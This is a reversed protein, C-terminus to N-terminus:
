VLGFHIVKVTSATADGDVNEEEESIHDQPDMFASAYERYMESNLVPDNEYSYAPISNATESYYARHDQVTHHGQQVSRQQRQEREMLSTIYGAREQHQFDNEPGSLDEEEVSEATDTGTGTGISEVEIQDAKKKAVEALAIEGKDSALYHIDMFLDRAGIDVALLFAKEFRTYRLLHHFFRRAYRSIPDRYELVAAETLPRAPAYFSGLATELQAERQQNLPMRLLHDFLAQLCTLCTQGESNWDLSGLLNVAEDIQRHKIYQNLLQTSTLSAPCSMGLHLQFVALPGRDFVMFLSSTTSETTIESSNPCWDMRKLVPPSRFYSGIELVKVPNIEESVLQVLLPNLAQDFVQIEGRSSAAFVLTGSPHWALISPKVSAKAFQTIRRKEDFLVISGDGCGLLLKDEAHNQGYSIVGNKLPITTVPATKHIKNKTIEYTCHEISMDGGSSPAQEITFIKFPHHGSFTINLPDCETRTYCLIDLRPGNIALVVLNARDRDSTMPSWPWAEESATPWWLVVLDQNTNCSIRRELRRGVPGPLDVQSIKPESASLKEFKKLPDGSPIKKSFYVYDLKSKEMYSAIMCNDTLLADTVTESSLKGVLSKDIFIKEVDGSSTSLVLLVVAGNSLIVSLLRQSRWKCCICRNVALLEELEKLSDRLRDPRRNKPTWTIDRDETYQRKEDYYPQEINSVTEAKDHYTHCGIDDDPIITQNKLTWIFLEGLCSVM